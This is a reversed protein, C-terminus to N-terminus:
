PAEVGQEPAVPVPLVRREDPAFRLVNQVYSEAAAPMGVDRGGAESLFWRHELLEHYVQAPELKGRMEEPIAAIAPEFVETLWRYAV